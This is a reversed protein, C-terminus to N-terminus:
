NIYKNILDKMEDSKASKLPTRIDNFSGYKDYDKSWGKNDIAQKLLEEVGEKGDLEECADILKQMLDVRDAYIIKYVLPDNNWQGTISRTRGIFNDRKIEDSVLKELDKDKKNTYRNDREKRMKDHEETHKAAVIFMQPELDAYKEAGTDRLTRKMKKTDYKSFRSESIREGYFTDGKKLEDKTIYIVDRNNDSVNFKRDPEITRMYYVNWKDFIGSLELSKRMKDNKIDNLTLKEPENKIKEPYLGKGLDIKAALQDYKLNLLPVYNLIKSLLRDFLIQPIKLWAKVQRWSESIKYNENVFNDFNKINNM